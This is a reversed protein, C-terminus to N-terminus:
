STMTVFCQRLLHDARPSSQIPHFVALLKLWRHVGICVSSVSTFRSDSRMMPQANRTKFVGPAPKRSLSILVRQGVFQPLCSQEHRLLLPGSDCAAANDDAIVVDVNRDLSRDDDFELCYLRQIIRVSRGTQVEAHQQVEALRTRLGWRMAWARQFRETYRRADTHMPPQFEKSAQHRFVREQAAQSAQTGSGVTAGPGPEGFVEIASGTGAFPSLM